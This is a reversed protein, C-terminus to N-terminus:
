VFTFHCATYDQEGFSSKVVQALPDPKGLLILQM